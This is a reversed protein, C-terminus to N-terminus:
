FHPILDSWGIAELASPPLDRLSIIALVILVIRAIAHIISSFIISIFILADEEAIFTPSIVVCDRLKILASVGVALYINVSIMVVSSIRWVNEETHSPFDFNWALCHIAGFVIGALVAVIQFLRSTWEAHESYFLSENVKKSYHISEPMRLLVTLRIAWNYLKSTETLRTSVDKTSRHIENWPLAVILSGTIILLAAHATAVAVSPIAVLIPALWRVHVNPRIALDLTCWLRCAYDGMPRSCNGLRRSIHWLFGHRDHDGLSTVKRGKIEPNKPNNTVGAAKDDVCGVNSRRKAHRSKLKKHDRKNMLKHIGISYIIEPYQANLPKHWWFYYMVFNMTALAATTIELQTIALHQFARALIQAIFWSLQLLVLVKSINDFKSRDKIEDETLDPLDIHGEKLLKEFTEFRVVCEWQGDDRRYEMENKFVEKEKELFVVKFGGMQLFHAHVQSWESLVM